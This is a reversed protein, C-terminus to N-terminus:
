HDTEEERECYPSFACASAPGDDHCCHISLPFIHFLSMQYFKIHTHILHFNSLQFQSKKESQSTYQVNFKVSNFWGYLLFTTIEVTNSNVM